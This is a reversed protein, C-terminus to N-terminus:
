TAAAVRLDSQGRGDSGIKRKKNKSVKANKLQLINSVSTLSM